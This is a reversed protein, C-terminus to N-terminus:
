SRTVGRTPLFRQLREEHLPMKLQSALNAGEVASDLLDGVVGLASASELLLVQCKLWAVPLRVRLQESTRELEDLADRARGQRRLVKSRFSLLLTPDFSELPPIKTIAEARERAVKLSGIQLHSLGIGANLLAQMEGFPREGLVRAGEAFLRIALEPDGQTLALEGRNYLLNMRTSDDGVTKLVESSRQFAQQALAFNGADLAGVGVSSELFFRLGLDGVTASRARANSLLELGDTLHSEGRYVLVLMLRTQARLLHQGFGEEEAIRVAERATALGETPDGFLISMALSANALCEAERDGSHLCARMEAFIGRISEIDGVQHLLHMETDLAMAVAVWDGERRAEEKIHTLRDVAEAVPTGSAEVLSEVRRIDLRLAQTRRGVVRLQDAAAELLPAAREMDRSVHLLRALEATGEARTSDDPENEVVIRLLHIAEAIAGNEVAREAALRGHHAARAAEGGRSLHLALEGHPLPGAEALLHHAIQLHRMALRAPSVQQYFASRFLEHSISVMGRDVEALRPGLLAEVSQATDELSMEALTTLKSMAIPRGRIALIEAIARAPEALTDLRSEFLEQLSIPLPLPEDRAQSLPLRGGLHDRTLEILFFPNRGGLAVLREEEDESLNKGATHHILTRAQEPSLGTLDRRHDAVAMLQNLYPSPWRRGLERPPRVTGIIGLSGGDWRRKVFQLVALTTDDAWQLDDVTLITPGEEAVAALLFSFADLLRRSLGSEQIPPVENLTSIGQHTPLFAAVLTRWPEDLGAVHHRIDAGGLADALASLPLRQEVQVPSASLVRFGEIGARRRLETLIRTKGIGGEGTLLALQVEGECVRDLCSALERLTEERGVLPIGRVTGGRGGTRGTERLSMARIREMLAVVSPHLLDDDGLTARHSGYAAEAAQRNGTMARAEIVCRVRSEDSPALLFLAEAADRAEHWRAAESSADWVRAARDELRARMAQRKGDLWDAFTRSPPEHIRVAFGARLLEAAELLPGDELLRAWAELDTGVHSFRLPDADSPGLAEAGVRSRLGHVLQRLRHRTRPSDAAEWFLQIVRARDIGGAGAVAVLAVLCQQHPTLKVPGGSGTIEPGGFLRLRIPTM